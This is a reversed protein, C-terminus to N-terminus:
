LPLGAGPTSVTLFRASSTKQQFSRSLCLKVSNEDHALYKPPFFLCFIGRSFAKISTGQSNDNLHVTGENEETFPDESSTERKQLAPAPLAM